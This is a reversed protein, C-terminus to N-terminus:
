LWEARVRNGDATFEVFKPGSVVGRDPPRVPTEGESSFDSLQILDGIAFVPLRPASKCGSVTARHNTPLAIWYTEAKWPQRVTVVVERGFEGADAVHVYGINQRGDVMMMFYWATYHHATSYVSAVTGLWLFAAICFATFMVVNKTIDGIGLLLRVVALLLVFGSILSVSLLIFAVFPTFAGFGGFASLLIRAAILIAGSIAVVANKRHRVSCQAAKVAAIAAITILVVSLYSNRLNWATWLVLVSLPVAFGCTLIKLAREM